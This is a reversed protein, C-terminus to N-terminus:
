GDLELATIADEVSSVEIAPGYAPRAIMIVKVGLRRAAELKAVTQAGGSNKSVLHTIRERELLDIEDELGYPPRRQLLKAYAPVPLAPAEILRVVFRCDSREFFAELGTHGTTLLVNTGDPVIAAAEAASEVITWDAGESQEWAPRMLRVLPVGSEQAAAVANRSITGAYPHTADVLREIGASRLFAGLGSAGGFGGVRVAGAPLIPAQTRGALSSTVAHGLAVLRSALDRAESTGGLILINMSERDRKPTM